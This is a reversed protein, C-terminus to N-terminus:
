VNAGDQFKSKAVIAATAAALACAIDDAKRHACSRKTHREEDSLEDESDPSTKLEKSQWSYKEDSYDHMPDYADYYSGYNNGLVQLWDVEEDSSEVIIRDDKVLVKEKGKKWASELANKFKLNRKRAESIGGDIDSDNSSEFSDPRYLSDKVSDYSDSSSNTQDRDDQSEVIKSASRISSRTIPKTKVFDVSTPKPQPKNTPKTTIVKSTSPKNKLKPKTASKSSTHNTKITNSTILKPKINTTTSKTSTPKPKSLNHKTPLNLQAKPKAQVVPEENPNTASVDNPSEISNPTTIPADKDEEHAVPTFEILEPVEDDHLKEFYLHVRKKNMRSLYCIELLEKDHSLERLGNKLLRGLILWLCEIIDAYSLEKYYDRLSFVDLRDEDLGTLENTNDREYIKCHVWDM